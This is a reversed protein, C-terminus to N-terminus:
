SGNQGGRNMKQFFDIQIGLLAHCLSTQLDIEIVSPLLLFIARCSVSHYLIWMEMQFKALLFRAWLAFETFILSLLEM